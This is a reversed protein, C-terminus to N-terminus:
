APESSASSPSPKTGPCPSRILAETGYTGLGAVLGAIIHKGWSAAGLLLGQICGVIMAGAVYTLFEFGDFPHCENRTAIYGLAVGIANTVLSKQCAAIFPALHPQSAALGSLAMNAGAFLAAAGGIGMADLVWKPIEGHYDVVNAPNNLVFQQLNVGGAKEMPDRNIWKGLSPAHFRLGYYVLSGVHEKTSFRYPNLGAAGGTQSLTNGYADYTYKGSVAGLADTLQVVNGRGDYHMFSTGVDFVRCLLGGIGGGMDMGRVYLASLAGSTNREQMVNMGDYVRGKQSQAVWAGNNWTFSKSVKLMSTGDYVFETKSQAVGAADRTVIAKLRNADDFQYDSLGSTSNVQALNGAEDYSLGSTSGVGYATTRTATTQNLKNNSSRTLTSGQADTKEYRTRNGASDYEYLAKYAEGAKGGTVQEGALQNSPDYLATRVGRPDYNYDYRSINTNNLGVNHLVDLEGLATHPIFISHLMM